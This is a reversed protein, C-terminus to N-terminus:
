PRRRGTNAGRVGGMAGGIFPVILALVRCVSMMTSLNRVAEVTYPLRVGSLGDVFGSGVIAAMVVLFMGVVLALLIVLLGGEAGCHIAM